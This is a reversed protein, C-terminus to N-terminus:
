GGESFEGPPPSSQSNVESTTTKCEIAGTIKTPYFVHLKGVKERRVRQSEMLTTLIPGLKSAHFKSKRLLETKSIRPNNRILRFVRELEQADKGFVFETELLASVNMKLREVLERAQLMNHEKIELGRDEAIQYLMACKLLYTELRSFFPFLRDADVDTSELSRHRCYWEEYLRKANRTLKFPGGIRSIETLQRLLNEREIEVPAPPFPKLDPKENTTVYVFRALFGSMVDQEQLKTNLWDITSASLISVCPDEIVIKQKRLLRDVLPPCDFLNTLLEKTGAMYSRNFQELAGGFEPWCFLGRPHKELLELFAEQTFELPYVLDKDLSRLLSQGICIATSKRYRSSPAVLIVWLNPFLRQNGLQFWVKRGCVSGLVTLSTFLHFIRPAETLPHAFADYDKLFGKEPIVLDLRGGTLRDFDNARVSSNDM